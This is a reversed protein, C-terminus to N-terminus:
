TDNSDLLGDPVTMRIEGAVLDVAIVRDGGFPLM